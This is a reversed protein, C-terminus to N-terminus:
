YYRRNTTTHQSSHKLQNKLTNRYNILYTIPLYLPNKNELKVMIILKNGYNHNQRFIPLISFISGKEM